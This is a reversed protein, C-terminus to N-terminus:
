GGWTPATTITVSVPMSKLYTGMGERLCEGVWDAVAGAEAADCEVVVEDHVVAVLVASAHRWATEWLLGLAQKFGDGATGQVPTNARVTGPADPELFRVRGSATRVETSQGQMQRRQWAALQPWAAAFRRQFTTAEAPSLVLGQQAAQRILGGRGQGYLTGFNVTKGFARQAPTVAEPDVGFLAAATLRHLDKGQTIAAIMQRDGSLEAAVCLEVLSLDAKVLVRGEGPRFCARYERTHPINQLNPRSCSMRGTAAGIQHFDAHIRGTGPHVHQTVFQVGYVSAMKSAERFELLKAVVPHGQHQVLTDENTDAVQVGLAHLAKLVQPPSDLNIRYGFLDNNGLERFLRGEIEGQLELKRRLAADSLAVWADVDFPAGQYEMWAIAAVARMELDAVATLKAAALAAQLHTYLPLLVTADTGAYRLQAESLHEAGWDSTQLHKDLPQGLLRKALASLTFYGAERLHVGGDLLQAALMTDFMGAVHDVGAAMLFALDFKLNHGIKTITADALLPMVALEWGPVTQCDIVYAVVAASEGAATTPDEAALTLLRIAGAHPDLGDDPGPGFTETDLGIVPCTALAALTATLQESSTLHFVEPGKKTSIEYGDDSREPEAPAKKTIVNEEYAVAPASEVAVGEQPAESWAQAHAKALELYYGM